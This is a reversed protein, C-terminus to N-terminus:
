ELLQEIIVTYGALLSEAKAQSFYRRQYDLEIQLQNDLELINLMLPFEVYNVPLSVLEVVQGDLDPMFMKPELNFSVQIPQYGPQALKDAIASLWQSYSFNENAIAEVFTQKVNPILPELQNSWPKDGCIIPLLNVCCGVLSTGQEFERNAIPVAVTFREQKFTQHLYSQFLAFLLIFPTCKFNKGLQKLKQHTSDVQVFRRLRKGAFVESNPNVIDFM